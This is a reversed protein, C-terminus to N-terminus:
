RAPLAREIEDLRANFDSWRGQELTLGSTIEAEEARLAQEQAQAAQLDARLTGLQFAIESRIKEVETAPLTSRGSRLNESEREMVATKEAVERTKESADAVRSALEARRRDLYMIRQEQLQVRAVLLQSHLSIRSVEAIEARLARVEALLATTPDATQQQAQRQAPTSQALIAPTMVVFAALAIGGLIGRVLRRRM